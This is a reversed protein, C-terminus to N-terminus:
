KGELIQNSLFQMMDNGSKKCRNVAHQANDTKKSKLKLREFNELITLVSVEDKTIGEQRTKVGILKNNHSNVQAYHKGEAGHDKLEDMLNHYGKLQNVRQNSKTTLRELGELDQSRQVVSEAIAVDAELFSKFIEKVFVSFEPSLWEALHIALLPHVFTGGGKGRKVELVVM